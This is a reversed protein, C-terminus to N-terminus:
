VIDPGVDSAYSYSIIGREAIFKAAKEDIMPSIIVLADAKSNHRQEYFQAKKVFTAVDGASVSSKIEVIFLNGNKLVIDLEVQAPWGFIVGDTDEEIVNLVKYRTTEELIGKLANRFSQESRIGWRAGLAGITQDHKGDLRKVDIKISAIEELLRQNIKSQERFAQSHEKLLSHAEEWKRDNAKREERYDAWKRDSEERSEAWKRDSEERSEKWKLDNAKWQERSEDWKRNDEEWKRDNEELKRNNAEWRKQDDAWKRNNEDWRKQDEAWKRNEEEWKRESEERDLRLEELVRDFRSEVVGNVADRVERNGNISEAVQKEFKDKFSMSKM